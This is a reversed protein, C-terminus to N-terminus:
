KQDAIKIVVRENYFAGCGKIAAVEDFPRPYSWLINEEVPNVATLHFYDAQGKYKCVTHLEANAFLDMRIDGFPIYYRPPLDGEHVVQASTSRALELNNFYVVIESALPKVKLDYNPNEKWKSQIDM